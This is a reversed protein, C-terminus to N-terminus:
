ADAIHNAAIYGFVLGQGITAGAGPYVHGFINAATNGTAYLGEIPSGGAQLVRGFEDTVLGGCTGLDSLVVKVAYLTGELPRLNPNPTVTPDGYYRDYASDGRQFDEDKGAEAFRNFREFADAFDQEPLGVQQALEGATNATFAIGAAYWSDPLPAKPFVSGALLYNNRYTQDFVLWLDGIPIGEQERKLMTQGFSMYDKAENLFRKGSPEVIFSGPLSREALLVQVNGDERVPAVCPYWWAENMYATDANIKEAITIADGTNGEAGLSRDKVLSPSQYRQRMPMNHDFGGAALMLGRRATITVQKGNQEAVAGVVRDGDLVLELLKTNTWVPIGAKIVGAFLGAATAQGTAAFKKGILMGGVGQLLRKLILPIAKWPRRRMLNMWKYDSATVPMPIPAEMQPARFRSVDKGLRNLDFPKCECTRGLPTGGPREAHYDSYGKAWSFKMPTTRMLMRIADPGQKLFARWPSEPVDTVISQLYQEGKQLDDDAGASLLAPNAPVWFAGGSRATSGGVFATKEIILCDLGREHGTLAAAMGTGSGVILMDVEIDQAVPGSEVDAEKM